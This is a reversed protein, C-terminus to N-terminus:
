VSGISKGSNKGTEERNGQGELAEITDKMALMSITLGEPRKKWKELDREIALDPTRKFDAM